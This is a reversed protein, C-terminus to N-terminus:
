ILIIHLIQVLDSYFVFGCPLTRKKYFTWKIHFLQNLLLFPKCSLFVPKLFLKGSFSLIFFFLFNLMDLIKNHLVVLSLALLKQFHCFFNSLIITSFAATQLDVEYFANTKKEWSLINAKFISQFFLKLQWM